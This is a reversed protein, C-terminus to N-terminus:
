GGSILVSLDSRAALEIDRRMDGIARRHEPATEHAAVPNTLPRALSAPEPLTLLLYDNTGWALSPDRRRNGSRRKDGNPTTSAKRRERIRRDWVLRVDPEDAFAQALRAFTAFQNRRIIVVQQIQAM